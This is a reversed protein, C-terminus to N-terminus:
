ITAKTIQIAWAGSSWGIVEWDIHTRDAFERWARQEEGGRAENPPWDQLFEDFIIVVGPTLHPGLHDLVTKTSTYLDCDIHVLRLPDVTTFDFTPLTDSFWGVVLKANSVDPQEHAFTGKKFPGWDEPLGEFSDFGVASLRHSILGLSHGTQVGFELAWGPACISVCHRLLQYCLGGHCTDSRRVGPYNPGLSYDQTM